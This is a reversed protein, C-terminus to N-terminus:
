GPAMLAVTSLPVHGIQGAPRPLDLAPDGRLIATHLRQLQPEPELGLENVLQRYAARYAALADATRGARYLALMLRCLLHQRHPHLATLEILEDIVAWHRGLRLEADLCEETAALRTEQLGRCLQAAVEPSAADALPPGHWMDLAGRLLPVKAHDNTESRSRAVLARFRHADVRMEDARLAYTSGQTEIEVGDRNAAAKTLVARLQSIRVHIAHQATHPPKDPWTLAVLRDVHVVHNVNLALVALLFRQKRPGLNLQGERAWAEVAGLLRFEM